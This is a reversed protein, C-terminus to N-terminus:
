QRFLCRNGVNAKEKTDKDVTSHFCRCLTRLYVLLTKRREKRVNGRRERVKRGKREGGVEWGGMEIGGGM